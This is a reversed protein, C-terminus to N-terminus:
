LSVVRFNFRNNSSFNVFYFAFAEGSVVKGVFSNCFQIANNMQGLCYPVLQAVTDRSALDNAARTKLLNVIYESVIAGSLAYADSLTPDLRNAEKLYELAASRNHVKVCEVAMDYMDKATLPEEQAQLSCVCSM